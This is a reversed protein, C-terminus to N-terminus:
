VKFRLFMKSRSARKSIGGSVPLLRRGGRSGGREPVRGTFIFESTRMAAKGNNPILPARASSFGRM